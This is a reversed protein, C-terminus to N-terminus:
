RSEVLARFFVSRGPMRYRAMEEYQQNLLNNVAVSLTIRQSLEYSLRTGVLYFAEPADNPYFIAEEVESMYRSSVGLRFRAYQYDLSAYATHKPKYPLENDTRGETRDEADLYTYSAVVSLQRWFFRLGTEAGKIVSRNLNVVQYEDTTLSEWFIMDSFDYIFVSTDTKLFDFFERRLGIEANLRLKEARLEPNERFKLGSHISQRLYIEALSPARFAQGLSFRLATDDNVQYSLGLKPSIQEEDNGESLHRYDYRAGLTLMLSDSLTIRDQAFGALTETQHDGFMVDAPHSDVEDVQVDLGLILYNRRFHYIDMQLLGGSKRADSDTLFGPPWTDGELDDPNFLSKSYNKSHYLNGSLKLGSSILSEMSLDLDWSDKKQRDNTKALPIKLPHVFPAIDNILWIHPYGRDMAMRGLSLSIRSDRQNVYQVKGYVNYISYDTNQRYGDSNRGSLSFIYGINRYGNSHSLSVDASDLFDDTYRLEEPQRDFYGWGMNLRTDKSDTPSKTIFNIVGGMANSGYLPSLAGKVVEVREVIDMPLASWNAGGTDATIAPRGDILLLVRNGIGGGRLDSAGRISMSNTATDSARGITVGPVAELAQDLTRAHRRSIDAVSLVSVTASTSKSTREVREASVVIEPIEIIDGTLRFDLNMVKGGELKVNRKVLTRFRAHSVKVSYIGDPLNEISYFGQDSTITVLSIGLIFVTAGEIPKGTITDAVSGGITNTGQAYASLAPLILLSILLKHIPKKPNMYTPLYLLVQSTGYDRRHFNLFYGPSLLCQYNPSGIGCVGILREFEM